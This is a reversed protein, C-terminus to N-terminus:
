MSLELNQEKNQEHDKDSNLNASQQKDANLKDQWAEKLAPFNTQGNSLATRLSQITRDSIDYGSDHVMKVVASLTKETSNEKIHDVKQADVFVNAAKYLNDSIDKFEQKHELDPNHSIFDAIERAIGQAQEKFSEADGKHKSYYTDFNDVISHSRNIVYDNSQDNSLNNSKSYNDWANNFKEIQVLAVPKEYKQMFDKSVEKSFRDANDKMIEPLDKGQDPISLKFKGQEIAASMAIYTEKSHESDAPSTYPSWEQEQSFDKIEKIGNEIFVCANMYEESLSNSM